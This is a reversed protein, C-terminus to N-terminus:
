KLLALLEPTGTVPALCTGARCVYATAQGDLAPHNRLLEIGNAPGAALVRAPLHRIWAARIMERTRESGLDGAIAIELPPAIDFAVAAIMALHGVPRDNMRTAAAAFTGLAIEHWDDRGLLAALRLLAWAAGANGSPISGDGFEKVRAIVTPDHGDTAYFGGRGADHFRDIMQEALGGAADLLRPDFVTEYLDVLGDILFAYDDLFADISARGARWAHLLRGDDGRMWDLIFDAAFRAAQAYQAGGGVQTGHALASIMLGNWAALVKDDRRPLPRQARAQRLKERMRALSRGLEPPPIGKLRAFDELPARANLISVGHREAWNGGPTVDFFEKFLAADEPGLAAAVEDPRWVYYAGEVGGSDADLTSHFGGAPDAMDRMAWDLTELGIELWRRNGGARYANFYVPALLANDYLMKEFHPVLWERDVSYRHFGGGIQDHFGGRAMRDLSLEVIELLSGDGTRAHQRLLLDLAMTMPFKPADGFGGWTRDHQHALAAVARAILEGDPERRAAGAIPERAIADLIAAGSDAIEQPQENWAAVIQRLLWIFGPRGYREEPPFYTGGFFPKGDPTLFLSMPWGGQGSMLQLAQMYIADIDPREERDVKISIFHRNLYAAIAENEFSERKMVHCWHCAAYGISLFVPKNEARARAFAEGGWPYWDVPNHAHDLLYPSNEHALRNAWDQDAAEAM